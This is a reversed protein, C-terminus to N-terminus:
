IVRGGWEKDRGMVGQQRTGGGEEGEEMWVGEHIRDPKKWEEMRGQPEM